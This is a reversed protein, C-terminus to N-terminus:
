EESVLEVLANVADEGEARIPSRDDKKAGLTLIEIPSKANAERGGEIVRIESDFLRAKRVFAKAPRAHLGDKPGVLAEKEFV